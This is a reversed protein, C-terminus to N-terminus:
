SLLGAYVLGRWVIEEVVPVTLVETLLWQNDSYPTSSGTLWLYAAIVGCNAALMALLLRWRRGTQGLQLGIRTPQWLLLPVALVILHARSVVGWATALWASGGVNPFLANAARYYAGDVLLFLASFLLAAGLVLAGPLLWGTEIRVARGSSKLGVTIGRSGPLM